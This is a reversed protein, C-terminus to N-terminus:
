LSLLSSAAKVDASRVRHRMRDGENDRILEATCYCGETLPSHGPHGTPPRDASQQPRQDSEVPPGAGWTADDTCLACAAVCMGAFSTVHAPGNAEM